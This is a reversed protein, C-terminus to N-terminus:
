AHYLLLITMMCWTTSRSVHGASLNLVLAVSQAHHPSHGLNVGIRSRPEWCPMKNGNQLQADLVYVPCGFPHFQAIDIYSSPLSSFTEEPTCGNTSWVKNCAYKLAFPWLNKTV